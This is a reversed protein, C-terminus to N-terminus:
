GNHFALSEALRPDRVAVFSNQSATKVVAALFLSSVGVLLLLEMLGFAPVRSFEPLVNWALDFWHMLLLWAAWFVLSRSSRRSARSMLGFFPVFLHGFRLLLSMGEWGHQQRRILWGTEEPINAYWILIYQSFAIYGWFFNFGFLLKGLDHFHEVTLEPGLIGRHQLAKALLILTALAGVVAASFYYIGYIASFWHPDVSMMYDFAFFNATIAFLLMGLPAAAQMRNTLEPDGSQDQQRSLSLFYAGFGSWIGFYILTRITFFAPNLWPQKHRILADTEILHADNWHFLTASGFLLPVVIPLSLLAVWGLAAALFEALRRVVVSWGARVLHQILVFFLSGLGISVVFLFAVLYSAQFRQWGSSRQQLFDNWHAPLDHGFRAQVSEVLEAVPRGAYDDLSKGEADALLQVVGILATPATQPDYSGSGRPTGGVAALGAALAICVVGVSLTARLLTARHGGLTRDRSLDLSIPSHDAM